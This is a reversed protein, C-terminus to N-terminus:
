VRLGLGKVAPCHQLRTQDVVDRALTLGHLSRLADELAELTIYVGVARPKRGLLEVLRGGRKSV